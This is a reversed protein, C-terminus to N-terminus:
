WEQKNWAKSGLLRVGLWRWLAMPSLYGFSSNKQIYRRLRSDAEARSIPGGNFDKHTSYHFDHVICGNLYFDPVGSCGDSDVSSFINQYDRETFQEWNLTSLRLFWYTGDRLRLTLLYSHGEDIVSDFKVISGSAM